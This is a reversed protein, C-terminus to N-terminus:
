AADVLSDQGANWPQGAQDDAAQQCSICFAAWPVAALRRESIACECDLCMGYTGAQIRDPASRVDRLLKADRDFTGIALDREQAGQTQDMEDATPEIALVRRNHNGYVLAARRNQLAIRYENLEPQTM